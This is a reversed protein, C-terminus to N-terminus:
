FSLQRGQWGTQRQSRVTITAPYRAATLLVHQAAIDHDATSVISYGLM